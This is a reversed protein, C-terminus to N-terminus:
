SIPIVHVRHWFGDLWRRYVKEKRCELTRTEREEPDIFRPATAVFAIPKSERDRLAQNLDVPSRNVYLALNAQPCAEVDGKESRIYRM